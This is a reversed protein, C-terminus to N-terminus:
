TWDATMAEEACAADFAGPGEPLRAIAAAVLARRRASAEPGRWLRALSTAARLRWLQAGQTEAVRMAMRLCAEAESLEAKAGAALLDGRIRLLDSEVWRIGTRDVQLLAEELVALGADAGSAWGVAEALLGLFYPSWMVAGTAAYDAVGKRLDAVGEEARGTRALTWGLIVSGAARYLPFGHADALEMAESAEASARAADRCIQFYICGWVRTVAATNRHGVDCQRVSAAEYCARATGARGLLLELQALWSLSMAKSDIAYVGASDRDRGQACLALAAEFSDRSRELEGRQSLASGIMRLGAIEAPGDGRARGLALLEWALALAREIEGRQFHFVSRGYLVPALESEDGTAVCLAHARAYADGTAEAAFGRAAISAQGMALRLKLERADRAPGAQGRDLAALGLELQGIAESTASRALSRRGAALRYDAEREALGAEACHEALMEPEAFVVDPRRAEIAEVIEMHLRRRTDRLLSEHAADRVLAHKFVYHAPAPGERRFILEAAMLRDLAIALESDGLPSVAALVEHSFERGICSALQAVEKVGRARDLRAMLSAHLSTPVATRSAGADVVAKTLEEIFLPVGDARHVIDRLLDPPLHSTRGVYSAIKEAAARGLQNLTLRTVGPHAALVPLRDPRSTMIMLVRRCGIGDLVRAVFELSSPDIWHVDEFVLLISQRMGLDLVHRQLAALTRVRLQAPSLDLPPYRAQTDIGLLGAFLPVAVDADEATQRLFTELRDLKTQEDDVAAVGVEQALHRIVPWLAAGAHQPSCQFRMLRHDEPAVADITARVLRSKGIGAGGILLIAQGAAARACAWRDLILALEQDRGVMPALPGGHLGEFRTAPLRAGVIEFAEVPVDFGKLRLPELARTSFLDGILAQTAASIVVAGPRAAEQLRSALNPTQGFVAEERASGDGLIDGVVVLGTAVGVRAALMRGQRAGLAAVASVIELGAQTAREAENEYANPWGFYALVGDGVLKATHGGAGAIVATVGNRYADVLSRLDEPDLEASLSTSGVLDVFMVTLYRREAGGSAAAVQGENTALAAIAAILQKRHGLSDVGIEHLDEATLGPLLSWVIDSDRFAAEYRELGLGRLWSGVNM